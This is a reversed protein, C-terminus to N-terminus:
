QGLSARARTRFDDLAPRHEQYEIRGAKIEANFHALFDRYAATLAAPQNARDAAEGRVVFGFLHGPANRLITDALANAAAFNGVVLNLMGAHYRADADVSDLMTYSGLAMPIFQAVTQSDGNEAAAMIRQYLRDFRERPSLNSIDPARGPLPAVGGPAGVNGVNAMDPVTPPAGGLRWVGLLAALIIAAGAVVWANRERDAM